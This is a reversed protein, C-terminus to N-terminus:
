ILIDKIVRDATVSLVDQQQYFGTAQRHRALQVMDSRVDPVDRTITAATKQPRESQIVSRISDSALLKDAVKDLTDEQFYFGNAIREKAAEIRALSEPSAESARAKLDQFERSLARARKSIQVADGGKKTEPQIRERSPSVAEDKLSKQQSLEKLGVSQIVEVAM